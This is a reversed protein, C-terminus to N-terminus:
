ASQHVVSAPHLPSLLLLIQTSDLRALVCLRRRVVAESSGSPDSVSLTSPRLLGGVDLAVFTFLLPLSWLPSFLWRGLLHTMLEIHQQSPFCPEEAAYTECVRPQQLRRM